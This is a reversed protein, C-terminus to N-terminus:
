RDTAIGAAGMARLHDTVLYTLAKRVFLAGDATRSPAAESLHLYRPALERAARWMLQRADDLSLGSPTFASTPFGAIADCDLELGAADGGALFSLAEELAQPLSSTGELVDDFWNFAARCGQQGASELAQLMEEGNYNRHLLLVFYRDLLREEVAYRFPNGSHRGEPARFDAHPDCNLVHVSADARHRRASSALARLIPLSNNNGGGIVIPHLGADFLPPLVGGVADDLAAVLQRLGSVRDSSDKLFGARERWPATDCAGAIWVDAGSLFRNSQVNVLGPLFCDWADEAGPVGLNALVGLHEPIGLVVFRVGAELALGISQSWAADVPARWCAEGLTREGARRQTLADLDPAVIRMRSSPLDGVPDNM